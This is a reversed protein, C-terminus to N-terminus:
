CTATGSCAAGIMGSTLLNFWKAVDVVGEEGVREVFLEIIDGIIQEQEKLSTDSLARSLFKRMLKHKEPDRESVISHAQDAFNAGDYFNSKLFCNVRGKRVGHIDTWAQSTNFSLENPAVRVVPGPSDTLATNSM